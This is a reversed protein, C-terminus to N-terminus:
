LSRAVGDNETHQFAQKNVVFIVSREKGLLDKINLKLKLM